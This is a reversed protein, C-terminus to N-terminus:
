KSTPFEKEGRTPASFSGGAWLWWLFLNRWGTGEDFQIRGAVPILGSPSTGSGGTLFCGKQCRSKLSRVAVVTLCYTSTTKIQQTKPLRNSYCFCVHLSLFKEGTCGKESFQGLIHELLFLSYIFFPLRPLPSSLTKWQPSHLPVPGPSLGSSVSPSYPADPASPGLSCELLAVLLPPRARQLAPCQRGAMNDPQWMCLICVCGFSLACGFGSLALQFPAAGGLPGGFVM